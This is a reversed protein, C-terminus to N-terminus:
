NPPGLRGGVWQRLLSLEAASLAPMKERCGEITHAIMFEALGEASEKGAVFYRGSDIFRQMIVEVQEQSVAALKEACREAVAKATLEKRYGHQNIERALEEYLQAYREPLLYPTGAASHIRWALNAIEPYLLRFADRRRRPSSRRAAPAGNERAAPPMGLAQRIFDEVPIITDCSAKYVASAHGPSLITTIRDHRRLRLLLPTFDADGSLIIFEDIREPQNLADLVDMVLHMDTSTKGQETLPPCDVVEFASLTFNRRYTYFAEPNLYCKRILFKRRCLRAGEGPGPAREAIWAVWREPSSAFAKAIEKSHQYEFCSYINDFDVFLASRTWEPYACDAAMSVEM